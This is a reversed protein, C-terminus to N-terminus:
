SWPPDWKRLPKELELLQAERSMPDYRGRSSSETAGEVRDPSILERLWDLFKSDWGDEMGRARERESFYEGPTVEGASISSAFEESPYYDKADMWDFLEEPIPVFEDQEIKRSYKDAM